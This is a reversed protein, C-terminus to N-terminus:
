VNDILRLILERDLNIVELQIIFSVVHCQKNIYIPSLMEGLM